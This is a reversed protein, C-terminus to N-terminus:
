CVHSSTISKIPEFSKRHLPCIGHKKIMEIHLKTGYGKHKEFSYQPYVKSSEVMLNDRYVKAIISASAITVSKSDGGIINLQMNKMLTPVPFADTLVFQFVGVIKVVESFGHKEAWSIGNEDIEENSVFFTAQAQTITKIKENLFNRKLPSLKKSDKIDNIWSTEKNNRLEFLKVLDYVVCGIVMPGAICGRGVEDVGAVYRVGKNLLDEEYSFM